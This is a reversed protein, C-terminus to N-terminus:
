LWLHKRELQIKVQHLSCPSICIAPTWFARYGKCIMKTGNNNTSVTNDIFGTPDPIAHVPGFKEPKYESGSYTKKSSTCAVKFNNFYTFKDDKICYVFSLKWFLQLLRATMNTWQIVTGYKAWIQQQIPGASIGSGFPSLLDSGYYIICRCCKWIMGKRGHKMISTQNKSSICLPPVPSFHLPSALDGQSGETWGQPDM